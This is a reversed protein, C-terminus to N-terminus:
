LTYSIGLSLDAGKRYRSLVTEANTANGKRTLSHAPNLLNRAKLGIGWHGALRASLVLDLTPVGNEVIDQYGETGITYVRDSFYNFVVTATIEARHLKIQESVDANVIWPAAGELQSGEPNTALPVRAHTYIYSANLGASLKHSGDGELAGQLLNKRLELEAGAVTAHHAINEYSLFGGASAIEIRSIPNRVYKYFATLSILEGAAPYFDWKLDANYNDSPKLDPNGQSNFSVNIYRYPSIEKAQPLTYTKSASLRLAHKEAPTYKLNISPLFYDKDISQSGQTGGRNVNYAVDMDVRDYKLGANATLQETLPYSVEAFAAHIQKNVTYSDVNKDLSFYGDEMNAANFYGDLQVPATGLPQQRTVAMDYETATFDDDVFRGTYGVSLQPTGGNREDLRCTLAARVNHDTEGLESYYRQQVGTGKMPVYGKETKVLDNIRRDPELGKIHNRSAGVELATNDGLAWRTALQNVFLLNDNTQQRRMFGEYTDSSQYDADMGWYDSSTATSAHIMMFNYAISHRNNHTYDANAMVLQSTETASKEGKLDQSLEGTTTTNRVDEDYYKYNRSHSAVAYFRLPNGNIRFAKGGSIKYSQNIPVTTKTPDLSNGFGYSQIDAPQKNGAFGLGNVGDSMYVGGNAAAGTNVGGSVSVGLEGDGFLEKSAININAGGADAPLSASFAKNVEVSRIIDTSFMDLAINKYEPDDSPIPFRNLMTINYRDGLGRVFVNKVGEQKSVGSIKTVAGQADSVGKRSLEKAGVAQVALVSRQQELLTINESERNAKATVVVDELVHEESELELNLVVMRGNEIKVKRRVSTKYGVYKIQLDYLGDPIGELQFNGDLDTVAGITSGMVQITAGILPEKSKSDKITGKVNIAAAWAGSAFLGVLLATSIFRKSHCKM